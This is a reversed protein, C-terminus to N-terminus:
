AGVCHTLVQRLAAYGRVGPVFSSTHLWKYVTCSVHEAISHYWLMLGRQEDRTLFDSSAGWLVGLGCHPQVCSYCEKRETPNLLWGILIGSSGYITSTYTLMSCPGASPAGDSTYSPLGVYSYSLCPSTSCRVHCLRQTFRPVVGRRQEWVVGTAARTTADKTEV